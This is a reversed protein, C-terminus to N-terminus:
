RRPPMASMVVEYDQRDIWWRGPSRCLLDTLWREADAPQALTVPSSLERVISNVDAKDNLVLAVLLGRGVPGEVKFQFGSRGDPITRPRDQGVHPDAGDPTGNSFENPYIRTLKRDPTADLLMLHGFRESTITYSVTQGVYVQLPGSQRANAPPQPAPPQPKIEVHM